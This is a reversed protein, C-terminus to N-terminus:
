DTHVSSDTLDLISFKIEVLLTVEVDDTTPAESSTQSTVVTTTMAEAISPHPVETTKSPHPM